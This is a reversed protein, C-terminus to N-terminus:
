FSWYVYFLYVYSSDERFDDCGNVKEIESKDNYIVVNDFM